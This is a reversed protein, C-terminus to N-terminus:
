DCAAGVATLADCVDIRGHGYVMNPWVSNEIGGCPPPSPDPAETNSNGAMIAEIEAITLEPEVALIQAVWGAVHPCSMSTGSASFYQDDATNGSSITNVGPGTIYPQQTTVGEVAVGPGRSSFFAILDLADSAGVSIVLDSDGPSNASGCSSGSNGMSFVTVVEEANLVGLVDWFTSQGQGGGWSNSCVDPALTCDPDSGDTRTPCGCFELSETLDLTPCSGFPNCGAAAIWQSEPAMGIGVAVPQGAITGMTHSGHGNGDEPVPPNGSSGPGVWNYDHDGAGGRYSGVLAEHTWRVGTDVNAVVAGEGKFGSLQADASRTIVIGYESIQTRRHSDNKPAVDVETFKDAMTEGVVNDIISYEQNGNVKRVTHMAMAKKIFEPTANSVYVTNTAWFGRADLGAAKAMDLLEKQSEKTFKVLHDHISVRLMKKLPLKGNTEILSAKHAKAQETCTERLHIFIETDINKELADSIMHDVEIAPNPVALATAALAFLFAIKMM